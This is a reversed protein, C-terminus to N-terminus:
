RERGCARQCGPLHHPVIRLCLWPDDGIGCVERYQTQTTRGGSAETTASARVLLGQDLKVGKM